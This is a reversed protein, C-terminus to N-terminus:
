LHQGNAQLGLPRMCLRRQRAFWRGSGACDRRFSGQGLPPAGQGRALARGRPGYAWGFALAGLVPVFTGGTLLLWSAGITLVTVALLALLLRQPTVQRAFGVTLLAILALALPLMASRRVERLWDGRELNDLATALIEVGPYTSGLPSVRFDMLGPAATGIVVIKDKFEGPQRQSHERLSDLYLASYSVHQWGSRWNLLM